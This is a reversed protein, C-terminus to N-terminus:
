RVGPGPRAIVKDAGEENANALSGNRQMKAWVSQYLPDVSNRLM